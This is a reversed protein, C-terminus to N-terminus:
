NRSKAKSFKKVKDVIDDDALVTSPGSRPDDELNERGRKFEVTRKADISYAPHLIATCSEFNMKSRLRM